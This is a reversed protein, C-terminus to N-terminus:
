FPRYGDYIARRAGPTGLQSELGLEQAASRAAVVFADLSNPSQKDTPAWSLMENELGDLGNVKTAPHHWIRSIDLNMQQEYLAAVPGAKAAKSGKLTSKTLRPMREDHPIEGTDLMHKWQREIAFITNDGGHNYETKVELLAGEQRHKVAARCVAGYRVAPLGKTSYCGLVFIRKDNTYGIAVIGTADGTASGSPDVGIIVKRFKPLEPDGLKAAELMPPVWLAGEVDMLLEGGLEQRGLHTGAYRAYLEALAAKSLTTNDSTKGTTVIVKPDIKARELLEMLHPVRKPTTTLIMRPDKSERMCFWAQDYMDQALHKPWAAYEDGWVADFAHGRISDPSEATFGIIKAGNALEIRTDGLGKYYASIADKPYVSNLGSVGEFCIDRLERSAKAIVAIRRLGQNETWDRVTESGTRTKGFGRGADLLWVNYDAPELQEPRANARWDYRDASELKKVLAILQADTLLRPNPVREPIGKSVPFAEKELKRIARADRAAEWGQPTQVGDPKHRYVARAQAHPHDRAKPPEAGPPRWPLKRGNEDRRDSRGAM